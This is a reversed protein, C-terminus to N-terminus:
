AYKLVYTKIQYRVIELFNTNEEKSQNLEGSLNEREGLKGGTM